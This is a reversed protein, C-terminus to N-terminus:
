WAWGSRWRGGEGECVWREDVAGGDGLGHHLELVWYRRAPRLRVRTFAGAPRPELLAHLLEDTLDPIVVPRGVVTAQYDGLFGQLVRGLVDRDRSYIAAHCGDHLSLAVVSGDPVAQAPNSLLPEPLDLDDADIGASVHVVDVDQGLVGVMEWPVTWRREGRLVLANDAAPLDLAAQLAVLDVPSLYLGLNGGEAHVSFSVPYRIPGDDREWGDLSFALFPNEQAPRPQRLTM